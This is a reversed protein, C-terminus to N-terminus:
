AAVPMVSPRRGLARASVLHVTVAAAGAVTMGPIGAGLGVLADGAQALGAVVLLPAPHWATRRTAAYLVAAGLPVARAAYVRAYLDTGTAGGDGLPLVLGPDAPAALAFGLSGVAAVGNLLALVPRERLM